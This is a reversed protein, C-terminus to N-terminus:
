TEHLCKIKGPLCCDSPNLSFRLPCLFSSLFFFLMKIKRWVNAYPMRSCAVSVLDCSVYVTSLDCIPSCKLSFYWLRSGCTAYSLDGAEKVIGHFAFHFYADLWFHKYTFCTLSNVVPCALADLLATTLSKSKDKVHSSHKSM